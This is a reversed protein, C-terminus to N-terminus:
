AFSKRRASWRAVASSVLLGAGVVLPLSGLLAIALGLVFLWNTSSVVGIVVLAVGILFAVTGIALFRGGPRGLRRGQRELAPDQVKSHSSM